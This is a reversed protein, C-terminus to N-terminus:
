PEVPEPGATPKRTGVGALLPIAVLVIVASLAFGGSYGITGTLLGLGFTGAVIGLDISSGFLGYTLGRDKKETMDALLAM